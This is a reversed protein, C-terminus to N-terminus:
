GFRFKISLFLLLLPNIELKYDKLYFTVYKKMDHTSFFAAMQLTICTCIHNRAKM